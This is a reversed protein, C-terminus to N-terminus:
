LESTHEESRIARRLPAGVEGRPRDIRGVQAEEFRMALQRAHLFAVRAADDGVILEAALTLFPIAPHPEVKGVAALRENAAVFALTGGSTRHAIRAAGTSPKKQFSRVLTTYPLLTDTRKCRPLRWEM